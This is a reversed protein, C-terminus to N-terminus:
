NLLRTLIHIHVFNKLRPFFIVRMENETIKPSRAMAMAYWINTDLCCKGIENM